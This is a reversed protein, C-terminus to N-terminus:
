VVSFRSPVTLLWDERLTCALTVSKCSASKSTKATFDASAGGCFLWADGGNLSIRAAAFRFTRTVPDSCFGLIQPLREAVFKCVPEIRKRVTRVFKAALEDCTARCSPSVASALVPRTEKSAVTPRLWQANECALGTVACTVASRM